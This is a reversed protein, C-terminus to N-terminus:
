MGDLKKIRRVHREEGSFPTVLWLSIIKQAKSKSTFDSALCLVNTDDDKRSTIAIDSNIALVARIRKTKNAAICVGVGSGCLLIGKSAPDQSVAQSVNKGFDPYDDHLDLVSNGSDVVEHDAKQLFKKIKEKLDFGRHDAGIYIKM